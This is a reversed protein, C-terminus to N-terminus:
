FAYLVVLFAAAALDFIVCLPIYWRPVPAGFTGNHHAMDWFAHAALGIPLASWHWWIGVLAAVGFLCAVALEMSFTTFNDAGAGFGIYAGGILALTVAALTISYDQPLLLHFPVTVAFLAGGVFTPRNVLNDTM